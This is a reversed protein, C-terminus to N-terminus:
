PEFGPFGAQPLTALIRYESGRASAPAFVRNESSM